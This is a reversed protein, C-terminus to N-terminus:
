KKIKNNNNSMSKQKKDQKKTKQREFYDLRCYTHEESKIEQRKGKKRIM